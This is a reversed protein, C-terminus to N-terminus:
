EWMRMYTTYTSWEVVFSRLQLMWYKSFHYNKAGYSFNTTNWFQTSGQIDNVLSHIQVRFWVGSWSIHKLIKSNFEEKASNRRGFYNLTILKASIYKQLFFNRSPTSYDFFFVCSMRKFIVRFPNICHTISILTHTQLIFVIYSCVYQESDKFAQIWELKKWM